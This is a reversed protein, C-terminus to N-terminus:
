GRMGASRGGSRVLWRRGEAILLHLGIRGPRSRCRCDRGQDNFRRGFEAQVQRALERLREGFLDHAGRHPRCGGSSTNSAGALAVALAGNLAVLWHTLTWGVADDIAQGLIRDLHQRWPAIGDLEARIKIKKARSNHPPDLRAGREGEERWM